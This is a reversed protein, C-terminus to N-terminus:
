QKYFNIEDQQYLTTTIHIIQSMEENDLKAQKELRRKQKAEYKLRKVTQWWQEPATQGKLTFMNM